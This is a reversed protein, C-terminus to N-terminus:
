GGHKQFHNEFEREIRGEDREVEGAMARQLRENADQLRKNLTWESASSLRKLKEAFDQRLNVPRMFAQM